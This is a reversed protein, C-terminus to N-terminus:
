QAEVVIGSSCRTSRKSVTSMHRHDEAPIGERLTRLINRTSRLAEPDRGRHPQYGRGRGSCDLAILIAIM